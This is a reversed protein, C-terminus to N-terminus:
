QVYTSFVPLRSLFILSECIQM